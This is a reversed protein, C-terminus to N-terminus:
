PLLFPCTDRGRWSPLPCPSGVSVPWVGALRQAQGRSAGQIAQTLAAAKPGPTEAVVSPTLLVVAGGVPTGPHVAPLAPGAAPVAWRWCMVVWDRPTHSGTGSATVVLELGWDMESGYSDRDCSPARITVRDSTQLSSSGGPSRLASHAATVPGRLSLGGALCVSPTHPCHAGCLPGSDGPPEAAGPPATHALWRAGPFRCMAGGVLTVRGQTGECQAWARQRRVHPLETNAQLAERPGPPDRTRPGLPFPGKSVGLVDRSPWPGSAPGTGTIPVLVPTRPSALATRSLVRQAGVAHWPRSSTGSTTTDREMSM